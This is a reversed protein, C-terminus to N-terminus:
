DASGTPILGGVIERKCSTFGKPSDAAALFRWDALVAAAPVLQGNGGEAHVPKEHQAFLATGRTRRQVQDSIAGGQLPPLGM